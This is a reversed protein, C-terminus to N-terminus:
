NKRKIKCIFFGDTGDINPYLTIYGQNERNLKGPLKIKVLEFDQNEKLFKNVVDQNERKLITCTSYVLEGGAKLYKSGNELIKYQVEPLNEINEKNWKIDPKRRIIGLGSCPVDALVKDCKGVLENKVELSDGLKAEIISIGMRQANKNIIDIKHPHIDFAYIRGKNEMLEAMHTTKGGPAACMDVVTEDPKPLLAISAMMAAIDQPIIRGEIYDSLSAVESAKLIRAGDYIRSADMKTELEEKKLSNVRVTTEPERNLSKLLEECFGTDWFLEVIEEPFSYKVSLYEIPDDPYM